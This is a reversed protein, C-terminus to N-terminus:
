LYLILVGVYSVMKSLINCQIYKLFINALYFEFMKITLNIKHLKM